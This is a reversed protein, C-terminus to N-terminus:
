HATVRAWVKKECASCRTKNDQLNDSSPRGIRKNFSTEDHIYGIRVTWDENTFDAHGTSVPTSVLQNSVHNPGGPRRWAQDHQCHPLSGHSDICQVMRM